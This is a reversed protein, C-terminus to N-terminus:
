CNTMVVDGNCHGNELCSRSKYSNSPPGAMFTMSWEVHVKAIEKNEERERRSCVREDLACIWLADIDGNDFSWRSPYRLLWRRKTRM